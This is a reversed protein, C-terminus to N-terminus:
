RGLNDRFFAAVKVADHVSGMAVPEKYFLCHSEKGFMRYTLQYCPGMTEFSIFDSFRFLRKTHRQEETVCIVQSQEDIGICVDADTTDKLGKYEVTPSYAAAMQDFQPKREELAHLLESASSFHKMPYSYELETLCNHMGMLDTCSACYKEKLYNYGGANTFKLKTNCRSCVAM